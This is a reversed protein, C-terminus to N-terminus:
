KEKAVRRRQQKKKIHGQIGRLQEEGEQPQSTARKKKKKEGSNRKELRERAAKFAEESIDTAQDVDGFCLLYGKFDTM